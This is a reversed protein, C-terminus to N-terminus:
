PRSYSYGDLIVPLGTLNPGPADLAEASNIGTLFDMAVVEVYCNAEISEFHPRLHTIHGQLLRVPRSNPAALDFCISAAPGFHEGDLPFVEGSPEQALSFRAIALTPERDSERVELRSLRALIADELRSGALEIHVLAPM